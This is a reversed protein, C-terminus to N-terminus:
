PASSSKEPPMIASRFCWITGDGSAIVLHGSAVAPGATFSAGADFRWAPEGSAVELAALTGKADAVLAVSRPPTGRNADSGTATVIVPSADVRGPMPRRWAQTGDKALFAEVARGRTGVVVLGEAVAASSRYGQGGAAAQNRWAVAPTAFAIAFFGGGETGFFTLDGAVAPTTGTPGGIEISSKEEGTAADIVHLRGDCGALFVRDGDARRAVTPGCRIQDAISHKWLLRGTALDLCSLSADQSGILTQPGDPTSLITPGGSIEGDTEYEWRVKGTQRDLGRVMGVDDGVVLPMSPDDTLAAASTFGADKVAFTWATTGTALDLAHFTGDLDGVYVVGHSIVPVAAFSTKEFDRRWAEVLPLALTASSRGTGALCGRATPWADAPAADPDAALSANAFTFALMVLVSAARTM